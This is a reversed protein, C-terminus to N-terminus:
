DKTVTTIKAFHGFGMRKGTNMILLVEEFDEKPIYVSINETDLASGQLVEIFEGFLWDSNDWTEDPLISRKITFSPMDYLGDILLASLEYKESFSAVTSSIVLDDIPSKEKM